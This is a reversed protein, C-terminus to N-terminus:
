KQTSQLILAGNAPIEALPYANFGGAANTTLDPLDPISADMPLGFIPLVRYTGNLRGMPLSLQLDRVADNGLNIVM